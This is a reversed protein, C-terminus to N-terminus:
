LNCQSQNILPEYPMSCPQKRYVLNFCVNFCVTPLVMWISGSSLPRSVSVILMASRVVILLRLNLIEFDYSIHNRSATNLKTPTTRSFIYYLDPSPKFHFGSSKLVKWQFVIAINLNIRLVSIVDYQINRVSANSFGHVSTIFFKYMVQLYLDLVSRHFIYLLQFFVIPLLFVV